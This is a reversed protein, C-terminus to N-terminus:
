NINQKRSPKLFSIKYKIKLYSKNLSKLHNDLLKFLFSRRSCSYNSHFKINKRTPQLFDEIKIVHITNPTQISVM